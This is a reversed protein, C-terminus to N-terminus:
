YKRTMICKINYFGGFYQHFIHSIFIYQLINKGLSYNLFLGNHLLWDSLAGLLWIYFLKLLLIIHYQIIVWLMFYIHAWVSTFLSLTFLYFPFFPCSRRICSNWIVYTSLRGRSNSLPQIKFKTVRKCLIYYPFPFITVKCYPLTPFM